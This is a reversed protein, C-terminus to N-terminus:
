EDLRCMTHYGYEGHITFGMAVVKHGDVLLEMGRLYPVEGDLEVNLIRIQENGDEDGFVFKLTLARPIATDVKEATILEM